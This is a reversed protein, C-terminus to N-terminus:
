FNSPPNSDKVADNTQDKPVLIMDNPNTRQTDDRLTDNTRQQDERILDDQNGKNMDNRMTDNQNLEGRDPENTRLDTGTDTSRTGTTGSTDGFTIMGQLGSMEEGEFGRVQKLDDFSSFRGARARYEVVSRSLEPTMGPLIQLEKASARNVDILATQPVSEPIRGVVQRFEADHLKIEIRRNMERNEVSDNAAVPSNEGYGVAVMRDESVGSEALFRLVATARHTSLEWNSAFKNRLNDGIPVDDTYGEIFIHGSDTAKLWTAVKGLVERGEATLQANGSAFLYKAMIKLTLQEQLAALQSAREDCAGRINAIIQEDNLDTGELAMGTHTDTLLTHLQALQREREQVQQQCSSNAALARNYKAKSVCGSMSGGIMLSCLLVMFFRLGRSNM